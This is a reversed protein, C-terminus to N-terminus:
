LSAGELREALGRAELAARRLCTLVPDVPWGDPFDADTAFVGTPVVAAGVSAFLPRLAHDIVLLHGPGGGTALPVGVKGALGGAPLLDFFAKLLGTYSARYVPTAALVIAAREVEELAADVQSSRERGLLSGAPLSSLDIVSTSCGASALEELGLALLRKSRSTASPSGSIGVAHLSEM